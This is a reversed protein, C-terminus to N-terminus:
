IIKGNDNTAEQIRVFENDVLFQICKQICGDTGSVAGRSNGPSDLDHVDISAALLTCAAYTEVDSPTAAVGSVVVELIARKLSSSLSEGLVCACVMILHLINCLKYYLNKDRYTLLLIIELVPLM